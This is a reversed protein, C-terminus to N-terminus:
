QQRILWHRFHEAFETASWNHGRKGITVDYRRTIPNYRVDMKSKGDVGTLDVRTKGRKPTAM